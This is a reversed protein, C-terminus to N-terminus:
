ETQSSINPKNKKDEENEFLQFVKEQM